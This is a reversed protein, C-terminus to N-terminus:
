GANAIYIYCINVQLESEAIYLELELVSVM